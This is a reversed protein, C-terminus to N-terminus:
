MTTSLPEEMPAKKSNEDGTRFTKPDVSFRTSV